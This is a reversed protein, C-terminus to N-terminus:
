KAQANREFWSQVERSIVEWVVALIPVLIVKWDIGSGMAGRGVPVTVETPVGSGSM